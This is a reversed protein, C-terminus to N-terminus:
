GHRHKGAKGTKLAKRAKSQFLALLDGALVYDDVEESEESTIAGEKNKVALEHMRDKDQESFHLNLFFRALDPSFAGNGTEMLRGFISAVHSKKIPHTGQM